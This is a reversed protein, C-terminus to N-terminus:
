GTALILFALTPEDMPERRKERARRFDDSRGGIFKEPAIRVHSTKAGRGDTQIARGM